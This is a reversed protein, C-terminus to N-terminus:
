KKGFGFPDFDDPEEGKEMLTLYDEMKARLASDGYLCWGKVTRGEPPPDLRPIIMPSPSKTVNM